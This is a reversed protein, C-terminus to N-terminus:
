QAINYYEEKAFIGTFRNGDQFHWWETKLIDFGANVMYRRLMRANRSEETNKGYWSKESSEAGLTMIASPMNLEKGTKIEKLTIDVAVGKNHASRVAIFDAAPGGMEGAYPSASVARYLKESVSQPRYADYLVISYGDRRLARQARYLKKAVLYNLWCQEGRRVGKSTYFARGNIGPIRKGRINFLKRKKALHQKYEIDPIYDVLNMFVHNESIWGKKKRYEVYFRHSSHKLVTLVTGAKIRTIQKKSKSTRYMATEKPLRIQCGAARVDGRDAASASNGVSLLAFLLVFCVAFGKNKM